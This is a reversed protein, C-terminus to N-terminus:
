RRVVAETAREAGLGILAGALVDGIFHKGRPVQVAAVVGAAARAAFAHRPYERAFAQAVAVVGASHGSPFSNEDHADSDGPEFRYGDQEADPRTRDIVAKVRGKGWTALTHAALMRVGTLALKPDRRVAGLAITGACLWRMQPQDGIESAAGALRVPWSDREDDLKHTAKRDAKEVHKATRKASMRNLCARM